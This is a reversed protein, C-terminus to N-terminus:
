VSAFVKLESELINLSFIIFRVFFLLEVFIDSLISYYEIGFYM